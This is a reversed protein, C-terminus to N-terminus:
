PALTVPGLGAATRALAHLAPDDTASRWTLAFRLPPADHVPLFVIGPPRNYRAAIEGLPHVCRGAAVLSLIEHLTRARPGRPVRRGLPTRLPVMADVWYAPADPGFDAVHNDALDELSASGREALPHGAAVALVRGTILVTPGVTLDPEAVPLWLM